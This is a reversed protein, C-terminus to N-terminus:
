RFYAYFGMLSEFSVKQKVMIGSLIGIIRFYKKALKEDYGFM